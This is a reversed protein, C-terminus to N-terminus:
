KSFGLAWMVDLETASRRGRHCFVVVNLPGQVGRVRFQDPSLRLAEQLERIPVSTLEVYGAEFEDPNRVDFLQISSSSLMTKLQKYVVESNTVQILPVQKFGRLAGPKVDCLSDLAGGCHTTVAVLPLVLLSPTCVVIIIKQM